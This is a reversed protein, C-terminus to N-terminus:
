IELKFPVHFQLDSDSDVWKLTETSLAGSEIRNKPDMGMLAYASDGANGRGYLQVQLRLTEGAKFNTKPIKAEITSYKSIFSEASHVLTGSTLAFLETEVSDVVKQIACTVYADYSSLAVDGSVGIPINIISKGDIIKPTIFTVDFDIDLLKLDDTGANIGGSAIMNSYFGNRSLQYKYGGSSSALAAGHFVIFGTGEAVDVYDYSALAEGSPFFIPKGLNLAM